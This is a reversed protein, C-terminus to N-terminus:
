KSYKSSKVNDVYISKVDENEKFKLIDQAEGYVLVGYTKVGNEEIYYLSQKYFESISSSTYSYAEIFEKRDNMYKLLSIFHTEYEKGMFEYYDEQGSIIQSDDLDELYDTLSILPYKDSNVNDGASSGDNLSPNFGVQNTSYQTGLEDKNSVRIGVWKFNLEDNYEEILYSLDKLEIDNDFSIYASVYSVPNLEKLEIMMEGSRRQYYYSPANTEDKYLVDQFMDSELCYIKIFQGCPMNKLIQMQQNETSNKFTNEQNIYINYKGFGLPEVVESNLGYGPINLETFTRLDFYFDDFYKGQSIKAPNYYFSSVIPAVIYKISFLILLVSIVSILIIKNMKKNMAKKIIKKHNIVEKNSMENEELDLKFDLKDALYENIIENKEIEREVIAKEEESAQNNKYKELLDKFEM